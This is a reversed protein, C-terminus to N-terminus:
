GTEDSDGKASNCSRCLVQLNSPDLALKPYRSRPRIHDVTVDRWSSIKLGCKQCIRGRRRIVSARLVRWDPTTYFRLYEVLEAEVLKLRDRLLANALDIVATDRSVRLREAVGSLLLGSAFVFLAIWFLPLGNQSTVAIFGPVMSGPIAFEGYIALWKSWTDKASKPVMSEALRNAESHEHGVRRESLAFSLGYEKKVNEAWKKVRETRRKATARAVCERCQRSEQWFQKAPKTKGCKWCTRFDNYM